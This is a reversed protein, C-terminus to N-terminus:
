RNERYPIDSRVINIDTKALKIRLAEERQEQEPHPGVIIKTIPLPQGKFLEIYPSGDGRFLIPKEARDPLPINHQVSLASAKEKDVVSVAIRYENEEKFGIHKYFNQLVFSETKKSVEKDKKSVEEDSLLLSSDVSGSIRLIGQYLVEVIDDLLHQYKTRAEEIKYFAEGHHMTILFKTKDANMATGLKTSDFELAIGGGKGYARWQSLRGNKMIHDEGRDGCFSLIFHGIAIQQSSITKQITEFIYEFSKNAVDERMKSMEPKKTLEERLIMELDYLLLKAEQTDNLFKYHTAWLCQSDLIGLAGQWTTYHYLHKIQSEEM